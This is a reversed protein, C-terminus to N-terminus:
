GRWQDGLQHHELYKHCVPGGEVVRGSEACLTMPTINATLNDIEAVIAEIGDRHTNTFGTSQKLVTDPTTTGGIAVAGTHYWKRLYVPKGRSDTGAPWQILVARERDLYTANTLVGSLALPKQFVMQNAGVSGGATWVRAHVLSTDISHMNREIPTLNDIIAEAFSTDPDGGTWTYHYVNAWEQTSDRFVARKTISVGVLAM